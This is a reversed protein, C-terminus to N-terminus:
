LYLKNNIIFKNVDNNVLDSFDVGGRIRRRIESSSGYIKNKILISHSPMNNIKFGDRELVAFNLNDWIWKGEKWEKQIESDEPKDGCIIDAGIVIWIDGLNKFRNYLDITRTYINNSLDFYNIEAGDKIVSDFALEMM